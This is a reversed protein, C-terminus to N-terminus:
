KRTQNMKQSPELLSCRVSSIGRGCHNFLSKLHGWSSHLASVADPTPTSSTFLRNCSDQPIFTMPRMWLVIQNETVIICCSALYGLLFISKDCSHGQIDSWTHSVPSSCGHYSLCTFATHTLHRGPSLGLEGLKKLDQSAKFCRMTRRLM